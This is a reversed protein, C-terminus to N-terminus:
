RRKNERDSIFSLLEIKFVTLEREPPNFRKKLYDLVMDLEVLTM